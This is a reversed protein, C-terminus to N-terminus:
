DSLYMAFVKTYRLFYILSVSITTKKFNIRFYNNENETIVNKRGLNSSLNNSDEVLEIQDKETIRVEEYTKEDSLPREVPKLVVSRGNQLSWIKFYEEM